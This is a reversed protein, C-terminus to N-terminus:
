PIVFIPLTGDTDPGERDVEVIPPVSKEAINQMAVKTTSLTVPTIKEMPFSM